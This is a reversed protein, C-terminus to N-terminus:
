TQSQRPGTTVTLFSKHVQKISHDLGKNYVIRTTLNPPIHITHRKFIRSARGTNIPHGTTLLM